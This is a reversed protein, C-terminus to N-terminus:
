QSLPLAVSTPAGSEVQEVIKQAAQEYVSEIAAVYEKQTNVRVAFLSIKYPAFTAVKIEQGNV